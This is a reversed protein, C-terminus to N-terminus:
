AAIQKSTVTIGPPTVGSSLNRRALKLLVERLDPPMPDMGAYFAALAAADTISVEQVTRLSVKAGTRGAGTRQPAAERAAEVARALAEDASAGGDTGIEQAALRDAEEKRRRAEELAVRQREKEEAEKKQLWPLVHAKLRKVLADADERWRWRDDIARAQDLIPQKEAKFAADARSRLASVRKAWVAVRDAEDDSSIPAALFTRALEREGALELRLDEAPDGTTANDGMVARPNEVTDGETVVPLTPADDPWGKGSTAAEYAEYTVANKAAAPWVEGPDVYDAGRMAFVTADDDRWIAVPTLTDGRRLRYYGSAPESDSLHVTKSALLARWTDFQDAM